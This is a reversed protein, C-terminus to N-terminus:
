GDVGSYSLNFSKNILPFDPVINGLIAYELAPWNQWSADHMHVAQLRKQQGCKIAFFVPGRWSEVGGFGWKNVTINHVPSFIEGDPLNKLILKVLRLSEYIEQFRIKVRAAVDGKKRTNIKFNLENYPYLNFQARWDLNLGSARAAMGLLGLQMALEPSIFGTSLFRDQLGGHNDYINQLNKVEALLEENEKLLFKIQENNLDITVGGPIILDKLYRHSFVQQNIRLVNEKLRSFQALGFALGGDNGLAGLDGLHNMIRECEILLARLYQARPLLIFDALNEIAMAYSAAYAVTADGSIRGALKAGEEMSMGVFRRHIGKHVYGLREELRLVREGLVSFRFHGPEIIGAHVPGVPIEHVGDGQVTVFPYPEKSLNVEPLREERLPFYNKPWAHHRLWPREDKAQMTKFGWLDYLARQLRNAVPFLDSLDPYAPYQQDLLIEYHILNNEIIFVLHLYFNAEQQEGWMTLLLAKKAHLDNASALLENALIKFNKISLM